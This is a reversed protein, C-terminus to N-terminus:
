MCLSRVQAVITKGLRDLVLGPFLDGESHVLRYASSRKPLGLEHERYDIARALRERLLSEPDPVEGHDLIRLAKETRGNYFGCGVFRADRDFVRVASGAAIPREPRRIMKRYFWPHRGQVKIKLKLEPHM